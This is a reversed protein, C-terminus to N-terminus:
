FIMLRFRAAIIYVYINLWSFFIWTWTEDRDDIHSIKKLCKREREIQVTPSETRFILNIHTLVKFYSSISVNTNLTKEQENSEKWQSENSVVTSTNTTRRLTSVDVLRRQNGKKAVIEDRDYFICCCLLLIRTELSASRLSSRSFKSRFLLQKWQKEM